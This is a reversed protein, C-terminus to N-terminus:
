EVEAAEKVISHILDDIEKLAKKSEPTEGGSPRRYGIKIVGPEKKAEYLFIIYPCIGINEHDANVSANSHRASCFLLYEAHIYPNPKGVAKSTRELMVSMHGEYVVKLGKGIIADQVGFKADDYTGKWSYVTVADNAFSLTSSFLLSLGLLASVVFNRKMMIYKSENKQQCANPWFYSLSRIYRMSVAEKYNVKAHIPM